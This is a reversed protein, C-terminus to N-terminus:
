LSMERSVPIIQRAELEGRVVLDMATQWDGIIGDFIMIRKWALFNYHSEEIAGCVVDTIHSEVVMQCLDEASPREMIITRLEDLLEGGRYHTMILESALDFRPAVFDGQIPILLKRM